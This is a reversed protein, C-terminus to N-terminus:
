RLMKNLIGPTIPSTVNGMPGGVLERRSMNHPPTRDPNNRAFNVEDEYAKQLKKKYAATVQPMPGKSTDVKKILPKIFRGDSWGVYKYHMRMYANHVRWANDQNLDFVEGNPKEYFFIM